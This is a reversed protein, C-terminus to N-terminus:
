SGLVMTLWVKEFKGPNWCFLGLLLLLFLLFFLSRVPPAVAGVMVPWNILALLLAGFFKACVGLGLVVLGGGGGRVVVLVVVGLVVVLVM